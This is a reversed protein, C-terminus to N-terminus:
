GRLPRRFVKNRGVLPDGARLMVGHEIPTAGSGKDNAPESRAADLTIEFGPDGRVASTLRWGLRVERATDSLGFGVNPTGTFAGGFAPLGYGLEGELRSEPEFTGSGPALGRADRASWLGRWAARRRAGLPRSASRSGGNRLGRARSAARGVRGVGRLRLGRACDAHSRAGGCEAGLGPARVVRAGGLEVGTGTEADGGDHRLGLELGPTLVGGGDTEFARGAKSSSGCDARM